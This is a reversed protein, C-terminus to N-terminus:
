AKVLAEPSKCTQEPEALTGSSNVEVIVVVARM